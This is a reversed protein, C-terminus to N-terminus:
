KIVTVARRNQSWSWESSGLVAPREKGYSIVTLRNADTGLSVLFQKAANARREGLGLNYERTGRMDCHGELVFKLEPNEKMFQAQKKLNEKGEETLSSSDFEFFVRDGVKNELETVQVDSVTSEATTEEKADDYKTSCATVALVLFGIALLRSFLM